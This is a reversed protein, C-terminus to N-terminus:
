AEFICVGDGFTLASFARLASMLAERRCWWFVSRAPVRGKPQGLTCNVSSGRDLGVVGPPRANQCGLPRTGLRRSRKAAKAGKETKARFEEFFVTALGRIVRLNREGRMLVTAEAQHGAVAGMRLQKLLKEGRRFGKELSVIKMKFGVPNDM